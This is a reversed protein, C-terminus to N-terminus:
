DTILDAHFLVPKAALCWSVSNVTLIYKEIEKMRCRRDFVASKNWHRVVLYLNMTLEGGDSVAEYNLSGSWIHRLSVSANLITLIDM